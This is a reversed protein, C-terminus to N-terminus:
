KQLGLEEGSLGALRSLHTARALGLADYLMNCHSESLTRVFENVRKMCYEIVLKVRM